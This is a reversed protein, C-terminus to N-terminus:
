GSSEITFTKRANAFIFRKFRAREGFNLLLGVEFRTARLYNILQAEPAPSISRSAKLELVVSSEVVLDVKFTAISKGRFYVLTPVQRDVQLGADRLAIVTAEEYVPEVFGHGLANYVNFFEGIIRETLDAHLLDAQIEKDISTLPLILRPNRQHVRISRNGIANPSGCASSSQQRLFRESSAGYGREDACDAAETSRAVAM